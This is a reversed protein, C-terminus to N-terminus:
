VANQRQGATQNVESRNLSSDQQAPYHSILSTSLTTPFHLAANATGGTVQITGDWSNTRIRIKQILQEAFAGKIQNNIVTVVESALASGPTFFDSAVFSITQAVGDVNVTLIEGGSLPFNGNLETVTFARTNSSGLTVRDQSRLPSVLEIQGLFRNLTYDKNAGTAQVESFGFVENASCIKIRSEVPVAALTAQNRQIRIWYMPLSSNVSTKVWNPSRGFLIHGAQRFGNTGDIVGIQVWTTGNWIEFMPNITNNAYTQGIFYISTFPVESHGLYVYSLNTGFITANSGNTQVASTIDAFTGSFTFAQSFNELIRIKSDSERRINSILTFKTDNSSSIASFGVAQENVQAVIEEATVSAANTFSAPTFWLNEMQTVGGDVVVALNHTGASMDFGADNGSELTATRGDKSLVTIQNDRELYLATTFKLDTPFALTANATGGTVQIEEDINTRSFLRVKTGDSSARAEFLSAASNIKTLVEQATVSGLIAFDSSEFTITEVQGNVSVFLTENGNLNYPQANQTEVFAKVIPTNNVSLFQEGGTASVVVEEFGVHKYTPIFGTGDDIYLKVVDAPITPEILSASVVRRNDSVLGLIGTTVARPTGRSLSQITAKIRDRLEQDSEEDRGNTVRAPNRVIATSFPLADFSRIAGIPVNSRTGSESATVPVDTVQVEGDFITADADLTFNIRESLDSEPVYVVTGSPILRDGGQSLVITEDTGHDRALGASLNFVVYNPQVTISSYPVTEVNPTGRGIVVSGSTPFGIASNGNVAMAGAIPGSLGAYIDTSIKIFGVDGLTVTTSAKEAQIRSLGYEFARDDLDSGTTTDLSYGRVIELMQFYQEDDEQAAAELMTTFVSGYNLDTLPTTAQLTAVMDGMIEVFTRPTFLAM